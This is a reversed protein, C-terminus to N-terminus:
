NVILALIVSCVLNIALLSCTALEFLYVTHLTFNQVINATLTFLYAVIHWFIMAKNVLHENASHVTKILKKFGWVLVFLLLTLSVNELNDVLLYATM